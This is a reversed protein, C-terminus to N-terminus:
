IFWNQIEVEFSCCFGYELFSAQLEANLHDLEKLDQRSGDYEEKGRQGPVIRGLM